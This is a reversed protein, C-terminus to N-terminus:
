DHWFTREHSTTLRIILYYFNGRQATSEPVRKGRHRMWLATRVANRHKIAQFPYRESTGDVESMGFLNQM